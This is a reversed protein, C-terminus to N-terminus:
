MLTFSNCQLCKKNEYNLYIQQSTLIENLYKRLKGFNLVLCVKGKKGHRGYRRWIYESNETSFCCAYTRGRSTEFYDAASYNPESVFKSARNGIYDNPLQKGDYPDAAPFDKYSDVRNFYLYKGLISSVLNEVTIVKYLIQNEPPQILLEKHPEIDGRLWDLQKTM